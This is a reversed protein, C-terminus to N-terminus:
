IRLIESIWFELSITTFSTLFHPFLLVKEIPKQFLKVKKIKQHTERMSLLCKAFIPRDRPEDPRLYWVPIQIGPIKPNPNVLPIQSRPSRSFDLIDGLVTWIEDFQSETVLSSCSSTLFM